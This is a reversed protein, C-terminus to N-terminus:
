HVPHPTGRLPLQTRTASRREARRALPTRLGWAALALLTLAGIGLLASAFILVATALAQDIM